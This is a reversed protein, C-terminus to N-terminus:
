NDKELKNVKGRRKQIFCYICSVIVGIAGGIYSFTHIFGVILFRERDIIESPLWKENELQYASLMGVIAGFGGFVLAIVITLLYRNVMARYFNESKIAFLEISGLIVGIPIGVWWTALIGVVLVWFRAFSTLDGGVLEYFGFQVFKFKTFYEPSITYTVQDHLVGYISAIIIAIITASSLRLIRKM